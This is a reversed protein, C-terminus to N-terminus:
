GATRRGAGQMPVSTDTEPLIEIDREELLRLFGEYDESV